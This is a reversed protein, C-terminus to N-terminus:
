AHAHVCNIGLDQPTATLCISEEPLSLDPSGAPTGKHLAVSEVSQTDVPARSWVYFMRAHAPAFGNFATSLSTSYAGHDPLQLWDGRRLRPMPVDEFIRDWGDLTPGFTTSRARAAREAASPPPLAPGRM